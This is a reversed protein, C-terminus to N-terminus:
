DSNRLGLDLWILRTESDLICSKTQPKLSEVQIKLEGFVTRPREKSLFQDLSDLESGGFCFLSKPRQFLGFGSETETGLGLGLM